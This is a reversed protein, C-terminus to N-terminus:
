SRSVASLSGNPPTEFRPFGAISCAHQPYRTPLSAQEQVPALTTDLLYSSLYILRTYRPNM